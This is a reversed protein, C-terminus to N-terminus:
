AIKLPKLRGIVYARVEPLECYWIFFASFLMALINIAVEPGNLVQVGDINTTAHPMVMMLRSIINFGQSFSLLYWPWTTLTGGTLLKMVSVFALIGLFMPLWWVQSTLSYSSKDLIVLPVVQIVMLVPLLAKSCLFKRM